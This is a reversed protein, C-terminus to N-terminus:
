LSFILFEKVDKGVQFFPVERCFFFQSMPQNLFLEVIFHNITNQMIDGIFGTSLQPNCYRSTKSAGQYLLGLVALKRAMKGLLLNVHSKAFLIPPWAHTSIYLSVAMAAQRAYGPLTRAM